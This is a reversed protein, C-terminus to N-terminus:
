LKDEKSLIQVGERRPSAREDSCRPSSRARFTQRLEGITAKRRLFRDVMQPLRWDESYITCIYGPKLEYVERCSYRGEDIRKTFYRLDNILGM